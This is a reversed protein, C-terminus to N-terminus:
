NSNAGSSLPGEARETLHDYRRALENLQDALAKDPATVAMERLRAAEERYHAARTYPWGSHEM